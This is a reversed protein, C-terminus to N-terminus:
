FKTLVLICLLVDFYSPKRNKLVKKSLIVVQIDNKKYRQLCLPKRKSESVSIESNAVAVSQLLSYKEILQPNRPFSKLPVFATSPPTWLNFPKDTFYHSNHNTECLNLSAM